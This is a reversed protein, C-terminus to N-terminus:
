EEGHHVDAEHDSRLWGCCHLCDGGGDLAADHVGLETAARDIHGWVQGWVSLIWWQDMVIEILVSRVVIGVDRTVM